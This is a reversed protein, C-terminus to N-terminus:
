IPIVPKAGDDDSENATEGNYQSSAISIDNSDETLDLKRNGKVREM